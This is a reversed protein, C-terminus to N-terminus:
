AEDDALVPVAGDVARRPEEPDAALLDHDDRRVALPPHQGIGERRCQRPDLGAVRDHAQLRALHVRAGEVREGLQDRERPRVARPHM